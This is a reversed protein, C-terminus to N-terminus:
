KGPLLRRPKSFFHCHEWFEMKSNITDKRRDKRSVDVTKLFLWSNPCYQLVSLPGPGGLLNMVSGKVRLLIEACVSDYIIKAESKLMKQESFVVPPVANRSPEKSVQEQVLGQKWKSCVPANWAGPHTPLYTSLLDSVLPFRAGQLAWATPAPSSGPTVKVTERSDTSM